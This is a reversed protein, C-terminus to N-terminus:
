EIEGKKNSATIYYKRKDKKATKNQRKGSDKVWILTLVLFEV